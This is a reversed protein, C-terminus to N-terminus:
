KVNEADEVVYECDKCGEVNVGVIDMPCASMVIYCPMLARLVVYDGAQCTLGEFSLKGGASRNGQLETDRSMSVPINMFLNLPDPATSWAMISDVKEKGLVAELATRYNNTCSAHNPAGLLAYRAPDCASILTDHIGPSRDQVFELMPARRNSVLIDGERPSVHLTAGRSHSMSLYSPAEETTSLAWIDVVQTGHTNIIRITQGKELLVAKGTRGPLRYVKRPVMNATQPMKPAFGDTVVEELHAIFGVKLSYNPSDRRRDSPQRSKAPLRTCLDFETTDESFIATQFHKHPRAIYAQRKGRLDLKQQVM